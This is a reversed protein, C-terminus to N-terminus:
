MAFFYEDLVPRSHVSLSQLIGRGLNVFIWSLWWVVSHGFMRLKIETIMCGVARLNRGGLQSHSILEPAQSQLKLCRTSGLNNEVFSCLHSEFVSIKEPLWMIFNKSQHVQFAWIAGSFLFFCRRLKLTNKIKLNTLAFSVWIQFNIAPVV